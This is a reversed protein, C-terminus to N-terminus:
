TKLLFAENNQFHNAVGNYQDYFIEAQLTGKGKRKKMLTYKISEIGSIMEM